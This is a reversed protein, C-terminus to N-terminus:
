HIAGFLALDGALTTLCRVLFARGVLPRALLGAIGPALPTDGAVATAALLHTRATAVIRHLVVALPHVVRAAIAALGGFLSAIAPSPILPGGTRRDTSRGRKGEENVPEGVRLSGM